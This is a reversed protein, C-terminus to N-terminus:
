INSLEPSGRKIEEKSLGALKTRFVLWADSKNIMITLCMDRKTLPQNTVWPTAFEHNRKRIKVPM